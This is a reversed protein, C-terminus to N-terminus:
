KKIILKWPELKKSEYVIDYNKNDENQKDILRAWAYQNTSLDNISSLGNGLRPMFISIKIIKKTSLENTLGSTIIEIKKDALNFKKIISQTEIRIDKSRDNFVGSQVLLSIMLYPGLLILIIKRKFLTNNYIKLWCILFLIIGINIVILFERGLDIASQNLNYYNLFLILFIPIIIFFIKKFYKTFLNKKNFIYHIGLYSNISAISLIQIPYYPTKTSFISLLTIVILPYKFLFYNNLTDNNKRSNLFGIISFVSWPMLNLTFNWIYYYFPNTFENNVSLTLLKNYIESFSEWGHLTIIQISWISFPLFGVILGLWFAIKNFIRTRHFFPLIALLPIFVLYTKLMVAMGIWLGSIFFYIKNKTKSAKISGYIGLTIVAGFAIDQTAMHFYNIWLYTTCLILSSIIPWAKNTLEKHLEYTLFIMLSGFFINPIYAAFLNDGFIKQSLAILFQIGITRDNVISGWKLPTIWNNNELIWKAQLVYIGEDYAILSREGLYLTLPIFLFFNKLLYYIKDKL